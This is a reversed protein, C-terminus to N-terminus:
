KIGKSLGKWVGDGDRQAAHVGEDDGQVGEVDGQVGQVGEEDRQNEWPEVVTSAICQYKTALGGRGKINNGKGGLNMLPKKKRM